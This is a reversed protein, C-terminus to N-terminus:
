PTHTHQKLTKHRGTLFFSMLTHFPFTPSIHPSPFPFPSPFIPFPSIHFIPSLPYKKPTDCVMQRCKRKNENVMTRSVNRKSTCSVVLKLPPKPTHICQHM